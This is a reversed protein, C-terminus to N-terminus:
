GAGNPALLVLGYGLAIFRVVQLSVKGVGTGGTFLVSQEAALLKEFLYGFRVTDQTPVIMSFFQEEKNYQFPILKKEWSDM